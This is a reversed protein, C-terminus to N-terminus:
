PLDGGGTVRWARTDLNFAARRDLRVNTEGIRLLSEHGTAATYAAMVGPASVMDALHLRHWRVVGEFIRNLRDLDAAFIDDGLATGHSWGEALRQRWLATEPGTRPFLVAAPPAPTRWSRVLYDRWHPAASVIREPEVIRLVRQASAARAQGRGLRFAQRTEALVPPLVTFGQETLMLDDFRYIASLPASLRELMVGIEWSRRALGARAGFGLATLRMAANRHEEAFPAAAGPAPALEYLAELDPPADTARVPMAVILLLFVLVTTRM